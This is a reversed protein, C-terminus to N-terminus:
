GSRVLIGVPSQIRAGSAPRFATTPANAFRRCATFRSRLGAGAIRAGDRTVVLMSGEGRTMPVRWVLGTAVLRTLHKHLATHGWGM